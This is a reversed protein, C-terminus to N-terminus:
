DGDRGVYRPSRPFADSLDLVEFHRELENKHRVDTELSLLLEGFAVTVDQGRIKQTCLNANIGKTSLFEVVLKGLAYGDLKINLKSKEM